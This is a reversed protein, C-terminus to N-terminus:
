PLKLGAALVPRSAQKRWVMKKLEGFEVEVFAGAEIRRGQLIIGAGNRTFDTTKATLKEKGTSLQGGDRENDQLRIEERLTFSRLAPM